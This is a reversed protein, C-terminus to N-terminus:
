LLPQAPKIECYQPGSIVDFQSKGGVPGIRVRLPALGNRLGHLWGWYAAQVPVPWCLDFDDKLAVRMEHKCAYGIIAGANKGADGEIFHRVDV